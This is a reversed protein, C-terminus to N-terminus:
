EGQHPPLRAAWPSHPHEARLRRWAQMLAEHSQKQLYHSMGLYFLAEAAYPSTRDEAVASLLSQAEHYRTWALMSRAVGIRLVALLEKAPLFGESRYHAVGRRDLWLLSPTWIVQYQRFLMSDSPRNLILHTVVCHEELFSRVGLDSMSITELDHCGICNQKSFFALVTKRQKGAAQLAAELESEQEHSQQIDAM